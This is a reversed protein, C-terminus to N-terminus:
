DFFNELTYGKDYFAKSIANIKTKKRDKKNEGQTTEGTSTIDYVWEFFYTCMKSKIKDVEIGEAKKQPLIIENAVHKNYKFLFKYHKPNTRVYEIDKEMNESLKTYILEIAENLKKIDEKAYFIGNNYACLIMDFVDVYDSEELFTYFDNLKETSKRETENLFKPLTLMIDFKWRDLLSKQKFYAVTHRNLILKDEENVTIGIKLFNDTKKAEFLEWFRPMIELLENRIDNYKPNTIKTKVNQPTLQKIIIEKIFDFCLEIKYNNHVNKEVEILLDNPDMM